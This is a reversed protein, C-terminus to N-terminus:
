DAARANSLAAEPLVAKRVGAADMIRQALTRHFQERRDFRHARAQLDSLRQEIAARVTQAGRIEALVVALLEFTDTEGEFATIRLDEDDALEPHEALLAAVQARPIAPDIRTM